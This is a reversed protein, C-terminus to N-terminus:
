EHIVLVWIWELLVRELTSELSALSAGGGELLVLLPRVVVLLLLLSIDKPLLCLALTLTSAHPSLILRGLALVLKVLVLKALVLEVLVLWVLKHM